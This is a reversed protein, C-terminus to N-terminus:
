SKMCQGDDEQSQQNVVPRGFLTYITWCIAVSTFIIETWMLEIEVYSKFVTVSLRCLLVSVLFVDYMAFGEFFYVALAPPRYGLIRAFGIMFDFAPCVMVLTVFSVTMIPHRTYWLVSAIEVLSMVSSGWFFKGEISIFRVVPMRLSQIFAFLVLALLLGRALHQFCPCCAHKPLDQCTESPKQTIGADLPQDDPLRLTLVGVISFVVHAAFMYYGELLESELVAVGVSSNFLSIWLLPMLADAMAWKSLRQVVQVYTPSKSYHAVYMLVIAFKVLPLIIGWVFILSGIVSPMPQGDVSQYLM